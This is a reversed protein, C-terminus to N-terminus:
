KLKTPDYDNFTINSHCIQSTGEKFYQKWIDGSDEGDGELKFVVGPFQKSIEIMDDEHNYWTSPGVYEGFSTGLADLMKENKMVFANFTDCIADFLDEIDEYEMDIGHKETYIKSNRIVKEDVRHIKLKYDTLYAM